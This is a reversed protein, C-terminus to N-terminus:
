MRPKEVKKKSSKKKKPKKRDDVVKFGHEKAMHTIADVMQDQTMERGFIFRVKAM